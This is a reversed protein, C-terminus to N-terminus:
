FMKPFYHKVFGVKPFKSGSSRKLDKRTRFDLSSFEVRIKKETRLTYTSHRLKQPLNAPKIAM